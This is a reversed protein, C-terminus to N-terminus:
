WFLIFSFLVATLHRVKSCECDCIWKWFTIHVVKSFCGTGTNPMNSCFLRARGSLVKDFRIVLHMLCPGPIHKFDLFYFWVLILFATLTNLNRQCLHHYLPWHSCSVKKRALLLDQYINSRLFRAYSDSKMLKFIHEQLLCVFLSILTHRGPLFLSPPSLIFLLTSFCLFMTVLAFCAHQSESAHSAFWLHQRSHCLISSVDQWHSASGCWVDGAWESGSSAAIFWGLLRNMANRPENPEPVYVSLWEEGRERKRTMQKKEQWWCSPPPLTWHSHTTFLSPTSPFGM